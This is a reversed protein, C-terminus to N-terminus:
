KAALKRDLEAFVDRASRTKASGEDYRRIRERILIDWEYEVDNSADPESSILLRHALTLRQDKPLHTAEEYIRDISSMTDIYGHRRKTDDRAPALYIEDTNRTEDESRIGDECM